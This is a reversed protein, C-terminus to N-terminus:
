RPSAQLRRGTPGTVPVTDFVYGLNRVTRLHRAAGIQREVKKRLRLMHVAVTSPDGTFDPGWLRDLILTTPLIHDAHEMLLQLLRFEQMALHRRVGDVTVVMAARDLEVGGLCLRETPESM